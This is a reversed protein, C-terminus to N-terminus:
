LFLLEFFQLLLEYFVVWLWASAALLRVSHEFLPLTESTMTSILRWVGASAMFFPYVLSRVLRTRLFPLPARWLALWGGYPLLGAWTTTFFVVPWWACVVAHSGLLHLPTPPREQHAAAQPERPEAQHHLGQQLHRLPLAARGHPDAHPAPHQDPLRDLLQVPQVHVEEEGGLLERWPRGDDAVLHGPATAPPRAPQRDSGRPRASATCPHVIAVAGHLPPRSNRPTSPFPSPFFPSTPPPLSLSLSNKILTVLEGEVVFSLRGDFFSLVCGGIWLRPRLFLQARSEAFIENGRRGMGFNPRASTPHLTKPTATPQKLM